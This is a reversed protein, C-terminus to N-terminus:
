VVPADIQPYYSSSFEVAPSKDGTLTSKPERVMLLKDLDRTFGHIVAEDDFNALEISDGSAVNALGARAGATTPIIEMKQDIDLAQLHIQVQIIQQYSAPVEPSPSGGGVAPILAMHGTKEKIVQRPTFGTELVVVGTDDYEKLDCEPLVGRTIHYPM